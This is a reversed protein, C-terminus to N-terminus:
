PLYRLTQHVRGEPRRASIVDDDIGRPPM